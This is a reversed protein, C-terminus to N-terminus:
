EVVIEVIDGDATEVEVLKGIVGNEVMKLIADFDIDKLADYNGLTEMNMGIQLGTRLLPMPLNVKVKDGKASLVNIRLMMKSFDKREEEPVIQAEPAAPGRLLDDVSIGFYDALQPLLTIDPCSIDNEWKSVAQPSVGMAEALQDQTLGKRKRAEAIRTGISNAM